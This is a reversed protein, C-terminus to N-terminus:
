LRVRRLQQKLLQQQKVIWEVLLLTCDFITPPTFLTSASRTGVAAGFVERPHAQSM